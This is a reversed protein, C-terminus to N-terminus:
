TDVGFRTANLTVGILTCSLGRAELVAADGGAEIPIFVTFGLVNNGVLVVDGTASNTGSTVRFQFEANANSGDARGSIACNFLGETYNGELSSTTMAQWADTLIIDNYRGVVLEPAIRREMDELARQLEVFQRYTAQLQDGPASAIFRSSM